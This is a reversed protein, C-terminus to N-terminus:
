IAEIEILSYLSRTPRVGTRHWGSAAFLGDFEALDRERGDTTALMNMDLLAVTGPQDGGGVLGEVVLARAGTAAGRRCNRLIRVCDEDSWDHLIWKLLYYDAPPVEAFFDGAVTTFRGALGAREAEQQAGGVVHPLDLLAGEIGPHAAMLALVLAGNAGGVDLVRVASGLDLLTVTDAVVLGTMDSMAGAFMEGEEPHVAMYTFMDSGVVSEAQNRGARVAAPLTGWAQWLGPANQVLAADRLSGPVDSRLLSGLPTAAFRGDGLVTLLGLAAGARMLRHTTGPDSGEREAIAGARDAGATVHDVIRLDALTRVTQAAWHGTLLRFLTDASRGLEAEAASPTPLSGSLPM